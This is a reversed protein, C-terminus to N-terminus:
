VLVRAVTFRGRLDYRDTSWHGVGAAPRRRAVAFRRLGSGSVTSPRQKRMSSAHRFEIRERNSGDEVDPKATQPRIDNLLKRRPPGGSVPPAGV